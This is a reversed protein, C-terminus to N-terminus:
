RHYRVRDPEVIWLEGDPSRAPLMLLSRRLLALVAPKEQSKPRLIFIGAYEDPPYARINGFDNDLTMLILRADKVIGALQSDEAGHLGEDDVTDADYGQERILVAAEIPLSEDIKFKM